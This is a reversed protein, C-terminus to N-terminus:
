RFLYISEEVYAAARAIAFSINLLIIMETAIVAASSVAGAPKAARDHM